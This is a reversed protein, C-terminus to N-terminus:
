GKLAGLSIGSVIYKQAFITILAPVAMIVMCTATMPGWLIAEDTIFLSAAVPLTRSNVSALTSAFLFENWCAVFVLIGISILGPASLPIIIKVVSQFKNCGDVLAAEEIENPFDLFFSWTMWVCFPLNIATYAIVLAFISDGLQLNKTLLFFPLVLVMPPLMRGFLFLLPLKEKGLRYRAMGYGALGGVVLNTVTVVAAVIASNLFYKPISSGWGRSGYGLAEKYNDMTPTFKWVPPTAFVIGAPKISSIAMWFLPFVMLMLFLTVVTYVCVEKVAKRRKKPTRNM